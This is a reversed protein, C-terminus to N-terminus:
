GLSSNQVSSATLELCEPFQLCQNRNSAEANDGQRRNTKEARGAKDRKSEGERRLLEQKGQMTEPITAQGRLHARIGARPASKWLVTQLHPYELFWPTSSWWCCCRQAKVMKVASKHGPTVEVARLLSLPFGSLSFSIGAGDACAM